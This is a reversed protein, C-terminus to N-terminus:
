NVATPFIPLDNAAGCVQVSFERCSPIQCYGYAPVLIDATVVVKTIITVCCTIKLVNNHIFNGVAGNEAGFIEIRYPMVSPQPIFLVVDIPETIHGEGMGEVGNADTYAVSVPIDVMASVRAFNPKDALREVILDAYAAEGETKADLFTLPYAPNYPMLNTLKIETQEQSKKMCADLLKKTEICAKECIGQGLGNGGISGPCNGNRGCTYFSM